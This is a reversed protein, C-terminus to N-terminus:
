TLLPSNWALHRIASVHRKTQRVGYIRQAYSSCNGARGFGPFRYHRTSDPALCWTCHPPLHELLFALEVDLAADEALHYDDLVLM